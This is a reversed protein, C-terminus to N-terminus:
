RTRAAWRFLGASALWLTAFMAAAGIVDRPWIPGEAGWGAAVAVASVLLHTLAAAIMARAMGTAAFRALFAGGVAVTPVAAFMLNADHNESGVIGVALNVWVLLFTALVAVSAALTYRLNRARAALEVLGGAVLLMTGWVVFDFADWNMEDTVRMALAPLALLTAAAGWGILRWNPGQRTATTMTEGGM